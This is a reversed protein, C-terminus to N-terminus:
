SQQNAWQRVNRLWESRRQTRSLALFETLIKGTVRPLALSEAIEDYKKNKLQYIKVSKKFWRWIEPVQFDAYIPFRDISPSTVDVEIVLDPPPHIKLDIKEVGFVSEYSQIYFCGDAEVGKGFIENKWTTSGLARIDIDWEETCAEVVTKLHEANEEHRLTPMTIELKGRDYIFRPASRSEHDKMLLEYTAWKVDTLLVRDEVRVAILKTKTTMTKSKKGTASM